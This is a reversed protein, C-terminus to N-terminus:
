LGRKIQMIELRDKIQKVLNINQAGQYERFYRICTAIKDALSIGENAEMIKIKNLAMNDLTRMIQRAEDVFEGEPFARSFNLYATYTNEQKTDHWKQLENLQEPPPSSRIEAGDEPHPIPESGKQQINRKAEEVYPSEPFTFIFHNYGSISDQALTKKWLAASELSRQKKIAEDVYIGNKSRYVDIYEQYGRITDTNVATGWAHAERAEEFHASEPFTDIFKKYGEVTNKELTKSWLEDEHIKLHFVFDGGQDDSNLLVGNFLTQKAEREVYKIVEVILESVRLFPSINNTLAVLIGKAFPSNGGKPGDVV